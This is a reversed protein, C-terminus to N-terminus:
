EEGQEYTWLLDISCIRKRMRSDIVDGLLSGIIWIVVKETYPEHKAM